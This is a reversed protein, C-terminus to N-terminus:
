WLSTEGVKRAISNFVLLLVFNLVTDFLGVATGFDYRMGALGVRYVYTSIVDAVEYTSPSYMLLIKESGQSFLSGLQLLLRIMITPLIGPITIHVIRGIRSAGDIQAAEYQQTDIGAIAAVYLVSSFGFNQWINSGIYLTRFYAPDNTISKSKGYLLHTFNLVGTDAAFLMTLLSVVVVTSIFHPFYTVSQILRRYTNSKLENLMIAFIIPIPFGFILSYVNIFLTNRLLRFFYYSGIFESFHEFGVWRSGTIGKAPSFDKFAIQIGYMPAYMFVAYWILPLITLLILQYDRICAKWFRLAKSKTSLKYQM